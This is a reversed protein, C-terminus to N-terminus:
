DREARPIAASTNGCLNWCGKPSVAAKMKSWGPAAVVTQVLNMLALGAHIQQRPKTMSIMSQQLSSSSPHSAQIAFM